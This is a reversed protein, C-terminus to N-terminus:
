KNTDLAQKVLRYADLTDRRSPELRLAKDFSSLAEEYRALYMLANGRNHWAEAWDPAITTAREFFVLAEEYFGPRLLYVGQQIQQNALEWLKSIRTKRLHGPTMTRTM